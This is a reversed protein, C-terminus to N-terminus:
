EDEEGESGMTSRLTSLGRYCLVRVSNESKAVIQATEEVSLDAVIRLLVIESQARPLKKIERIITAVAEDSEILEEAQPSRDKLDFDTAEGGSKVQRDRKRVGDILRNRTITYIWSRFQKFDGEFKAMDRTASIWTESVVEEYDLTSGYCQGAAFRLLRPNLNKWIMEFAREDGKQAAVLFDELEDYVDPVSIDSSPQNGVQRVEVSEM